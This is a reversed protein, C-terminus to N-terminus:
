WCLAVEYHAFAADASVLPIRETRAQAILMRDFPDRHHLPLNALEFAHAHEFAIPTFGDDTFLQTVLRNVPVPLELRGIGHKIAIEASSVSSFLVKTEGDEILSRALPSLREPAAVWWLAVHTDVLIASPKV